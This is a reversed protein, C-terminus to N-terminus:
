VEYEGCETPLSLGRAMLYLLITHKDYTLPIFEGQVNVGLVFYPKNTKTSLQKKLIM